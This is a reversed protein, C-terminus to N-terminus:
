DLLHRFHESSFGRYQLFRGRRAKDRIDVPPDEGFKKKLVSEALASWDEAMADLALRSDDETIGRERLESVLRLPGVGRRIRQHLFSETFRMDNQLSEDALRQLQEEVLSHNEFRRRLKRRLEQLSHERRALLNMAALRIDGAETM